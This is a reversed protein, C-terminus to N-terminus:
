AQIDTTSRKANAAGNLTAEAPDSQLHSGIVAHIDELACRILNLNPLLIGPLHNFDAMREEGDGETSPTSRGLLRCLALLSETQASAHEVRDIITAAEDLSLTPTPINTVIM